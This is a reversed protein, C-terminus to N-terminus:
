KLIQEFNEVLEREWALELELHELFKTQLQQYQRQFQQRYSYDQHTNIMQLIMLAIIMIWLMITNTKKKDM